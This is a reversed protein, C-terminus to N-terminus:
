SWGVITQFEEDIGRICQLNLSLSWKVTHM